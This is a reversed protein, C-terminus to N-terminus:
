SDFPKRKYKRAEDKLDPDCDLGLVLDYQQIAKTREKKSDFIKGMWLYANAKEDPTADKSAVVHSFEEVAKEFQQRQINSDALLYYLRVSRLRDYGDKKAQAKALIQEYVQVAQDWDKMKGYVSAKALEFLFNRPYKAHLDNILQLAQEYQKERNYVVVLVMKADTSGNKGKAAAVELQQIGAEKGAGRVGFMGILFRVFGPIVGVVYDYTGITMRADDFTPDLKLVQQHLSKAEKAKSHASIYSRKVTAEFSALTGLSIGKAYLARVDNPNKKLIADAKAMATALTDRLRKEDQPNVADRSEKTGFSSGGSFSEINLKQQDFTIKLWISSALANWYDPSDPYERTLTEYGRQAISFDLNYLANTSERYIQAPDAGAAAFQVPLVCLLVTAVLRFAGKGDAFM